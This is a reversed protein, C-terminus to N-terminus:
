RQGAFFMNMTMRASGPDSSLPMHAPIVGSHLLRGRYLVLRDPQAEVEGIMEYRDSDGYHYDRPPPGLTRFEESVAAHYDAERAASITEFGTRRHRYFATGGTEKGLMYFMGAVVHAGAQDYHPICQMPQLRARPTSVLAYALMELVIEQRLAFVQELIGTVLDRRQEILDPRVAARLGPYFAGAQQFHAARGTALLAKAMASFGDLIVLPEKEHGISRISLEAQPLATM